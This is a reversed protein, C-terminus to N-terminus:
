AKEFAQEYDSQQHDKRYQDNRLEYTAAYGFFLRNCIRRVLTKCIIAM